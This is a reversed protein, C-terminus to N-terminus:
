IVKFGSKVVWRCKISYWKQIGVRFTLYPWAYVLCVPLIETNMKRMQPREREREVPQELVNPLACIQSFVKLRSIVFIDQYDTNRIRIRLIWINKPRGSRSGNTLSVSRSRAGSGSGKIMLYRQILFFISEQQKPKKTVETHSKIKSFHHLHVKLFYYAFFSLLFVLKKNVNQLDCVFIAPEPDADLNTLPISGRIQIRLLIEHIQLVALLELTKHFYPTAAHVLIWHQLSTECLQANVLFKRQVALIVSRQLIKFHM